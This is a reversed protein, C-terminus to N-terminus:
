VNATNEFYQQNIVDIKTDLQQRQTFNGEFYNYNNLLRQGLSQEYKKGEIIM